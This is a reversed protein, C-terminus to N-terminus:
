ENLLGCLFWHTPYRLGRKHFALFSVVENAQPQPVAEGPVPARWHAVEKSLLLGKEVFAALV